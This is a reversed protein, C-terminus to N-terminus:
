KSNVTFWPWREVRRAVKVKNRRLWKINKGDELTQLPIYSPNPRFYRTSHCLVKIVMEIGTQTPSLVDVSIPIHCQICTTALFFFTLYLL